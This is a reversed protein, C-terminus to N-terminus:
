ITNLIEAAKKLTEDTKAFCFRLVKDDKGDDNFISLPISAIGKEITLEKAFEVDNQKTINAYSLVQFYTGKSPIFEFRSTKILDLFRDRKAQYFDSLELYHDPTDMYDALAVQTPHHVSFVNFQHVNRFAEMLSKPACCYGIKWGTNHFTKGFSATIFSRAKLNKFKCVSQHKLGEFIIHEYVEDSLVIMDTNNTIRQLQLMDSESLITGSPNHPTNIIIMRTQETIKNEVHLWDIAYNPAELAVSITKGGNLTVAPEYCDYAPKFIIVEDNPKIFASIITFIAQTAGATITIETEPQYSSDYLLEFKKSIAKRLGFHGAMPAYQNFGTNMAKTVGDILKQDSKFNPFGQSLNIANHANALASMISFISTEIKSLKGSAQM